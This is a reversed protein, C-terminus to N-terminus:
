KYWAGDVLITGKFPLNYNNSSGANWDVCYDDACLWGKQGNKTKYMVYIQSNSGIYAQQPYVQTGKKLTFTGSSKNHNKYFSITKVAVLKEGNNCKQFGFTKMSVRSVKNNNLNFGCRIYNPGVLSGVPLASYMSIAFKGKGNTGVIPGAKKRYIDSSDDSSISWICNLKNNEYRYLKGFDYHLYPADSESYYLWIDLKKDSKDIDLIQIHPSLDHGGMDYHGVIKKVVKGNIKINISGKGTYTKKKNVYYSLSESGGKKDLNFKYEKNVKLNKINAAQITQSTLNLSFIICATFILHKILNKKM